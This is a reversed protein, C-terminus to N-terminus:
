CTLGFQTQTIVEEVVTASCYAKVFEPFTMQWAAYMAIMPHINHAPYIRVYMHICICEWVFNIIAM